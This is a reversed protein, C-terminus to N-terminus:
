CMSLNRENWLDWKKRRILTQIFWFVLLTWMSHTTLILKSVTSSIFSWLSSSWLRVLCSRPGQIGQVWPVLWNQKQSHPGWVLPAPYGTVQLGQWRIDRPFMVAWIVKPRATLGVACTGQPVGRLCLGEDTNGGSSWHWSNYLKRM